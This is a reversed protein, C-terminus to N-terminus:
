ISGTSCKKGANTAQPEESNVWAEKRVPGELSSISVMRIGAERAERQLERVRVERTGLEGAHAAGGVRLLGRDEQLCASTAAMSCVRGGGEGRPLPTPTYQPTQPPRGPGRAGEGGEGGGGQPHAHLPLLADAAPPSRSKPPSTLPAHTGGDRTFRTESMTLASVTPASM